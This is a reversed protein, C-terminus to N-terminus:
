SPGLLVGNRSVSPDSCLSRSFCCPRRQRARLKSCAVEIRRSRTEPQRTSGIWRIWDWRAAATIDMWLAHAQPDAILAARLDAPVSPEPWDTTPEITLMATDDADAGTAEGLAKSIKLWHSGKGAAHARSGLRCGGGGPSAVGSPPSYTRRCHQWCDCRDRVRDLVPLADGRQRAATRSARSPATDM